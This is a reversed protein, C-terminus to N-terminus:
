RYFMWLSSVAVLFSAPFIWRCQRDTARAAEIRGNSAMKTTIIVEILSLFVMLTSVLIFADLLTLYPLKPVDNGIAFRYAILTLMSTVAVSVQSAGLAPDIWFVSMSMLVIILLPLIVKALYHEPLRRAHFELTYGALSIGPLLTYAEPRSQVGTVQWDQMTPTSTLGVAGALGVKISEPDPVFAIQDPGLGPTVLRVAFTAEDFPFRKLNLRHKFTAALQQRYVATGDPTVVVIEPLSRTIRNGANLAMWPPSWIGDLSFKKPEVESHALTRDLWRFVLVVDATFSQTASNIESIDAFWATVGVETPGAEAGPRPPSPPLSSPPEALSPTSVLFAALAMALLVSRLILRFMLM